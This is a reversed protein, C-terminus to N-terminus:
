LFLSKNQSLIKTPKTWTCSVGLCFHRSMPFKNLVHRASLLHLLSSSPLSNVMGLHGGTVCGKPHPKDRCISCLYCHCGLRLLLLLFFHCFVLLFIGSGSDCCMPTQCASCLCMHSSYPLLVIHQLLIM